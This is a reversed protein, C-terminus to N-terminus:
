NVKASFGAANLADIAAKADFNGTIEFSDADKAATTGTVGSVKAVAKNVSSVCKNCCLHVGSVSLSHVTGSPVAGQNLHIAADSPQGYFGAAVLADVAKQATALSSATIKVTQATKDAEASAGSVPTVASVADDVCGNCCLHVHTLTVSYEAARSVSCAAALSALALLFRSKNM